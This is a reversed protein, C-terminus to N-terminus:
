QDDLIAQDVMMNLIQKVRDKTMCENMCHLEGNVEYFAVQGFGFGKLSWNIVIPSEVFVHNPCNEMFEKLSDKKM